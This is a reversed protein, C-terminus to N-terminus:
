QIAEMALPGLVTRVLRDVAPAYAGPATLPPIETVVIRPADNRVYNLWYGSGRALRHELFVLARRNDRALESLLQEVQAEDADPWTELGILSFGEMLAASGMAILRTPPPPARNPTEPTAAM